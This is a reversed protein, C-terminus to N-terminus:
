FGIPKEYLLEKLSLLSQGAKDSGSVWIGVLEAFKEDESMSPLPM